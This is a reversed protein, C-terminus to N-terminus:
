RGGFDLRIGGRLLAPPGLSSVPTRAVNYRADFLNQAALFLDAHPLMQRSVEADVTFARGLPLFTTDDLADGVFRAQVGATWRPATYSWQATVENRPVLPVQTRLSPTGSLSTSDSFVYGASIQMRRRVRLEASLEAGRARTSGVNARLDTITACAGPQGPLAGISCGAPVASVLANTILDAIESWFFTARLTLKEHWERLSASAEGGTLREANLNSNANTVVNGVRFSRYLENLTPARFARYVSISASVNHPFTHLLSVRPDFATQSRNAFATSTFAGSPIATRHMYGRSNLWSDIRGGFTLLWTPAIQVADQGFYGLTRQRGGADTRASSTADTSHGQADLAEIGATVSQRGGFTRRWQGAFGVDQSPSRQVDTLTESNRNAAVSSSNQNYVEDAGYIRVSFSGVSETTWDAGAAVGPLRTDNIQLPTGNTRSEAFSTARVFLTGHDGLTRSLQLTGALDATGAPTDVAGRQSAPVLIYGGTRLAEGNASIGWEGLRLGGAFSLDPTDLAGYSAELTGFSTRVQRSQLNVVGGLAGGGYTDSAGGNFIEAGAISVRPVANWHVWRGFADNLPIGDLLVNSRSAGSAGIGRMSVGQTTPNAFLSGSRRFLSFGPAQRLVEDVTAAGSARIQQAPISFESAPEAPVRDDSQASVVIRQVDSAPALQVHLGSGLLEPTIELSAPAFGPYRVVLTGGSVEPITFQGEVDTTALRTGDTTRLEVRAGQVASSTSDVVTGRLEGPQQAGAVPAFILQWGFALVCLLEWRFQRASKACLSRRCAVQTGAM